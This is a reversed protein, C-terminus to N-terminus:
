VRGNLVDTASSVSIAKTVAVCGNSSPTCVATTVLSPNSQVSTVRAFACGPVDSIQCAFADPMRESTETLTDVSMSPPGAVTVTTVKAPAAPTPADEAALAGVPAEATASVVVLGPESTNPAPLSQVPAM